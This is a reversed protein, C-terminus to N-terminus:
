LLIEKNILPTGWCNYKNNRDYFLKIVTETNGFGIRIDPANGNGWTLINSTTFLIHQYNEGEQIVRNNFTALDGQSFKDTWFNGLASTHTHFEITTYEPNNFIIKKKPYVSGVTGSGSIYPYEIINNHCVLYGAYEIEQKCLGLICELIWLPIVICNAITSSNNKLESISFSKEM